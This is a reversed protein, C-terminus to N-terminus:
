GHGPAVSGAVQCVAQHGFAGGGHTRDNRSLEQASSFMVQHTLDFRVPRLGTNM